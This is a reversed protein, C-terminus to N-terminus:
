GVEGDLEIWVIPGHFDGAWVPLGLGSMGAALLFGEDGVEVSFHTGGARQDSLTRGLRTCAVRVMMQPKGLGFRM